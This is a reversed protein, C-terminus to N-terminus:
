LAIVIEITFEYGHKTEHVQLKVDGDYKQVAEKINILGFGHNGSDHKTSVIGNDVIEPKNRCPNTGRIVLFNNHKKIVLEIWKEGEAMAVAEIANDILNSFITCVDIAAFEMGSMNGDVKLLIGMAEAIAYKESLIADAIENGIQFSVDAHGLQEDLNHIYETIETYKQEEALKGIVFLHNKMDHKIKRIERNSQMLSEYHSKQTELYYEDIAHKKQFYAAESQKIIMIVAFLIMNVFIFSAGVTLSSDGLKANMIIPLFIDNGFYADEELGFVGMFCDALVFLLFTVIILPMPMPEKRKKCSLKSFIYIISEWILPSVLTLILQSTKSINFDETIMGGISSILVIVITTVECAMLTILFAKVKKVNKINITWYVVSFLVLIGNIVGVTGGNKSVVLRLIGYFMEYLLLVIAMHKIIKGKTKVEFGFFMTILMAPGFVWATGNIFILLFLYWEPM